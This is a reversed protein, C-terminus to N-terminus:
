DSPGSTNRRVEGSQTLSEITRSAACEGMQIPLELDPSRMEYLEELNEGAHKRGSMYLAIYNGEKTRFVIGPTQMGVREGQCKEENEKMLELIRVPTDDGHFVRGDAAQRRMEQYIPFLAIVSRREREELKNQEIKEILIEIEAPDIQPIKDSEAM